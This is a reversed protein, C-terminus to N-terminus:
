KISYDISTNEIHKITDNKLIFTTTENQHIKLGNIKKGNTLKVTIESPKAGGYTESIKTYFLSIFLNIFIIIMAFAWILTFILEKWNNSASSFYSFLSSDYAQKTDEGKKEIRDLYFRKKTFSFIFFLYFILSYQLTMFRISDEVILNVILLLPM